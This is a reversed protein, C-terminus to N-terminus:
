RERFFKGNNEFDNVLQSILGDLKILKLGNNNHEANSNKNKSENTLDSEKIKKEFTIGDLVFKYVKHCAQVTKNENTNEDVQEGKFSKVEGNMLAERDEIARIFVKSRSISIPMFSGCNDFKQLKLVADSEKWLVYVAYYTSSSTCLKGDPMNFIMVKDDCYDKRYFYEPNQQLELEAFKQAVLSDVFAEDNQAFCITTIILVLLFL